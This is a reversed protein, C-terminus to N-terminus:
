KLRSWDYDGAAIWADSVIILDTAEKISRERREWDEPKARRCVSDILRQTSRKLTNIFLARERSGCCANRHVHLNDEVTRINDRFDSVSMLVAADSMTYQESM